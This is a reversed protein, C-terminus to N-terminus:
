GDTDGTIRNVYYSVYQIIDKLKGTKKKECSPKIIFFPNFFVAAMRNAAIIVM